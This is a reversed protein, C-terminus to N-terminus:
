QSVDKFYKVIVKEANVGEIVEELASRWKPFTSEMTEIPWRRSCAPLVPEDNFFNLFTGEEMPPRCSNMGHVPIHFNKEPSGKFVEVIEVSHERTHEDYLGPYKSEAPPVYSANIIAINEVRGSGRKFDIITSVITMLRKVEPSYNKKSNPLKIELKNSTTELYQQFLKERDFDIMCSCAQVTRIESVFLVLLVVFFKAM